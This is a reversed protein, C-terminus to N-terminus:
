AKSFLQMFQESAVPAVRALQLNEEVHERNSM